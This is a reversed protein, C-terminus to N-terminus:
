DEETQEDGPRKLGYSRRLAEMADEEEREKAARRQAMQERLQRPGPGQLALGVGGGVRWRVSSDHFLAVVVFEPRIAVPSKGLPIDAGVPLFLQKPWDQALPLVWSYQFHPALYFAPGRVGGFRRGITLGADVGVAAALTNNKDGAGCCGGALASIDVSLDLPGRVLQARFDLSGGFTTLSYSWFRAGLEVRPDVGGRVWAQIEAGGFEGTDAKAAAGLGGGIEVMGKPLTDAPRYRLAPGCGTAALGLVVLIVLGPVKRPHTTSSSRTSAM